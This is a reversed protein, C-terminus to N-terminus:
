EKESLMSQHAGSLCCADSSVHELKAFSILDVKLNINQM